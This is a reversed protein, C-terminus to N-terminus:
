ARIFILEAYDEDSVDCYEYDTMSRSTVTESTVSQIVDACRKPDDKVVMVLAM